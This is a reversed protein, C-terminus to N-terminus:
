QRLKYMSNCYDSYVKDYGLEDVKKIIVELGIHEHEIFMYQPKVKSHKMGDLVMLEVGEVDLVFLDVSEINYEEILDAFTITEIPYEKLKIGMQNLQLYHNKTHKFSGNGWGPEKTPDLVTDDRFTFKSKKNLLGKNVNISNPRNKILQEFKAPSAEVNIGKWNKFEEFYKCCSLNLGDAAGCEIFFGNEKNVFFTNELLEDVYRGNIFQGYYQKNRTIM